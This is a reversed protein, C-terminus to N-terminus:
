RRDRLQQAVGIGYLALLVYLDLSTVIAGQPHRFFLWPFDVALLATAVLLAACLARRDERLARHLALLLAPMLYILHHVYAYPSAVIMVVSLPLLLREFRTEPHARVALVLPVAVLTLITVVSAVRVAAASDVLRAYFGALSFNFVIKPEFLGEIHAGHSMGPLRSVFEPWASAGGFPLTVLVAAALGAAVGALARYRREVLWPLALVIPTVKIAAAFALLCGALFSRGTFSALLAGCILVLVLANVQGIDINNRLPLAFTLLAGLVFLPLPSTPEAIAIRAARTALWVSAGFAVASLWAWLAQTAAFSLGALWSFGYAFFPPYLYPFLDGPPLNADRAVQQLVAFDYPSAGRKAAAAAGWFSRLDIGNGHGILLDSACILAIFIFFAFALASSRM